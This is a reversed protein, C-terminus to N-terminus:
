SCWSHAYGLKVIAACAQVLFAQVLCSKFRLFTKHDQSQQDIVSCTLKGAISGLQTRPSREQSPTNAACSNV